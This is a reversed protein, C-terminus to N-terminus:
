GLCPWHAARARTGRGDRAPLRRCYRFPRTAGDSADDANAGASAANTFSVGYIKHVLHNIENARGLPISGRNEGHFLSLLPMKLYKHVIMCARDGRSGM